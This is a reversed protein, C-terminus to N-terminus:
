GGCADLTEPHLVTLVSSLNAPMRLIVEDDDDDDDHFGGGPGGPGDAVAPAVGQNEKDASPEEEVKVAEEEAKVKEDVKAANGQFCVFFDLDLDGGGIILQLRLLLKRNMEADSLPLPRFDRRVSVTMM